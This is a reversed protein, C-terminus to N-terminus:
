SARRTFNLVLQRHARQTSELKEAIARCDEALSKDSSEFALARYLLIRREIPQAEIQELVFATIFEAPEMNNM